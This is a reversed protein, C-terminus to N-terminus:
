LSVSIVVLLDFLGLFLECATAAITLLGRVFAVSNVFDIHCLDILRVRMMKFKMVVQVM